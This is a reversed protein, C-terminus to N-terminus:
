KKELKNQKCVYRDILLYDKKLQVLEKTMENSPTLMLNDSITFEQDAVLMKNGYVYQGISSSYVSLPFRNKANFQRSTDLGQGVFAAKEPFSVSYNTELLQTLSPTIDLHSCVGGFSAKKKLLPSYIYLPVHYRDLESRLPLHQVNHDGTIMFITNAFHPSKRFEEFFTKMCDDLYLCTAFLKIQEEQEINKQKCLKAAQQFFRKEPHDFPSHISLTLLVDLFPAQKTNLSKSYFDFMDRDTRGWEVVKLENPYMGVNDYIHDVDQYFLFKKYDDFGAWAPYYFSTTYEDQKLTSLLSQHAPYIEQKNFGREEVGYPLSGLINAPAGFTRHCNSVFNRWYLSSDILGDLFPTFEYVANPGSFVRSLGEVIVVVVNPQIDKKEFFPGLVNKKERTKFFPFALDDPATAEYAVYRKIAQKTEEEDVQTDLSQIFDRVVFDLKNHAIRFEVFSAYERAVPASYKLQFLNIITVILPILVLLWDGKFRRTFNIKCIGYMWIAVVILFSLLYTYAVNKVESAVILWLESFSYSFVNAGLLEKNIFYYYSLCFTFVLVSSAVSNYFVDAGRKFVKQYILFLPLLAFFGLFLANFDYHVCKLFLYVRFSELINYSSLVYLEIVRFLIFCTLLFFTKLILERFFPSMGNLLLEKAKM